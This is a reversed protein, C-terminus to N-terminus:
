TRYGKAVIYIESSSARSAPPSYAKCSDFSSSVRKFLDQYMDGQFVKMVLNGGAM